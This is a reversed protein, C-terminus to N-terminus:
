YGNVSFHFTNGRSDEQGQGKNVRLRGGLRILALKLKLMDVSSVFGGKYVTFGVMNSSVAAADTAVIEKTAEKTITSITVRLFSPFRNDVGYRRMIKPILTESMIWDKAKMLPGNETGDQVAFENPSPFLPVHM